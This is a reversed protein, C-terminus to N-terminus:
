NEEWCFKSSKWHHSGSNYYLWSAVRTNVSPTTRNGTFKLKDKLWLWTNDWFQFLGVDTSKDKNINVANPNGSSECYIILLAERVDEEEFYESVLDQWEIVHELKDNNNLCTAFAKINDLTETTPTACLMISSLVVGFM